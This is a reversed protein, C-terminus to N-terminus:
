LPVDDGGDTLPILRDPGKGPGVMIVPPGPCTLGDRQMM